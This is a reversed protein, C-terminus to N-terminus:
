SIRSPPPVLKESGVLTREAAYDDPALLCGHEISFGPRSGLSIAILEYLPVVTKKKVCGIACEFLERSLFTFEYRKRSPYPFIKRTKPELAMFVGNQDQKIWVEPVAVAGWNSPEIRIYAVRKLLIQKNATDRETRAAILVGLADGFEVLTLSPDPFTLPKKADTKSDNQAAPRATHTEAM